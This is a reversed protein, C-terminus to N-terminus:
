NNCRRRKSLEFLHNIDNSLPTRRLDGLITDRIRKSVVIGQEVREYLDKIAAEVHLESCKFKDRFDNLRISTTTAIKEIM